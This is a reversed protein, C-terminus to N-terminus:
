TFVSKSQLSFQPLTSTPELAAERAQNERKRQRGEKRETRVREQGEKGRGGGREVRM